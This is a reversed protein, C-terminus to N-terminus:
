AIPPLTLPTAVFRFTFSSYSWEVSEHDALAGMGVFLLPIAAATSPSLIKTSPPSVGKPM